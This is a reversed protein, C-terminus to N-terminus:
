SEDWAEVLLWEDGGRVALSPAGLLREGSLLVLVEGGSLNQGPLFPSVSTTLWPVRLPSSSSACWVSGRSFQSGCEKDTPDQIMKPPQEIM